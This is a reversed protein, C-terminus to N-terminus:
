AEEEHLIKNIRKMTEEWSYQLEELLEMYKEYEEIEEPTMNEFNANM